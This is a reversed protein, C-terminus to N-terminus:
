NVRVWWSLATRDQTHGASEHAGVLWRSMDRKGETNVMIYWHYANDQFGFNSGQVSQISIHSTNTCAVYDAKVFTWECDFFSTYESTSANQSVKVDAGNAIADSLTSISGTLANGQSDHSYALVWGTQQQWEAAFSFSSLLLATAAMLPFKAKM